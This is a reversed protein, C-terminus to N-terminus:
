SFFRDDDPYISSAGPNLFKQEALEHLSIKAQEPQEHPINLIDEFDITEANARITERMINSSPLGPLRQVQHAMMEETALRMALGPGYLVRAEYLKAQREDIAARKLHSELPHNEIMESGLQSPVNEVSRLGSRDFVLEKTNSM